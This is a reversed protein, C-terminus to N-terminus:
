WQPFLIKLTQLSKIGTQKLSVFTMRKRILLMKRVLIGIDVIWKLFWSSSKFPGNGFGWILNTILRHACVLKSSQKGWSLLSLDPSQSHLNWHFSFLFLEYFQARWPIVYQDWFCWPVPVDRLECHTLPHRPWGLKCLIQGLYIIKWMVDVKCCLFHPPSCTILCNGLLLYFIPSGSPLHLQPELKSVVIELSPADDKLIYYIRWILGWIHHETELPLVFTHLYCLDWKGDSRMVWRPFKHKRDKCSQAISIQFAQKWYTFTEM